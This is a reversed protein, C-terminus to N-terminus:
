GGRRVSGKLEAMRVAGILHAFTFYGVIGLAVLLLTGLGRSLEFVPSLAMEGGWLLAGMLISAILIRPARRILRADAHVDEGMNKKGFWM